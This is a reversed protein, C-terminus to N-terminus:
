QHVEDSLKCFECILESSSSDGFDSGVLDNSDEFHAM